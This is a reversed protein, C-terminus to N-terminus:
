KRYVGVSENPEVQEKGDREFAEKSTLVVMVTTDYGKAQILECDIVSLVEGHEVHDGISVKTEFGEGNLEVTDIGIHVLVETNENKIGFAHGTPFVVTIEGSIPAVITGEEIELAFGDGLAKSAFTVDKVSTIDVLLGKAPSYIHQKNEDKKFFNFM